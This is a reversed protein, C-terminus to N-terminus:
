FTGLRGKGQNSDRPSGINCYNWNWSSCEFKQYTGYFWSYSDYRGYQKGLYFPINYSYITHLIFIKVGLTDNVFEEFFSYMMEFLVQPKSPRDFLLKKTLYAILIMLFDVILLMRILMFSKIANNKGFVKAFFNYIAESGMLEGQEESEKLYEDPQFEETIKEQLVVPAEVHRAVFKGNEFGIQLKKTLGGSLILLIAEIVFFLLFM